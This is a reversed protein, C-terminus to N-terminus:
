SNWVTYKHLFAMFLLVLGKISPNM